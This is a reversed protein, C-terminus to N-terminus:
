PELLVLRIADLRLHAKGLHRLVESVYKEATEVEVERVNENVKQLARLRVAENDLHRHALEIASTVIASKEGEAIAQAKKLLNPVQEELFGGDNKLRFTEEDQGESDFSKHPWNKTVEKGAIDVVVRVPTPPLFRDVHLAPPAVCELVYLAEVLIGPRGDPSPLSIFATNGQESSLIVEMAGRVMPHEWTLFAMDERGLAESRHCTATMGENPLGPLAETFLQGPSIAYTGPSIDEVTVGFHDFLVNLYENLTPDADVANIQSVLTEAQEPRFSNRALLRSQGSRLQEELDDKFARSRQLLDQTDKQTAQTGEHYRAALESLAKGFTQLYAGGGRLSHEVGDIGEHHWRALLETSSEELFPIHIRITESQGIRDLRGIRQELLEPDLPLDFLVLHHAFQFNRGESGIESCLLIRAGDPEAFWAASRDRQVLTMAEHFVAINLNISSKLATEIALVKERTRCILLVKADGLKKLLETLWGIRSGAKYDLPEPHKGSPTHEESALECEAELRAKREAEKLSERLKLPALKALRKPFGTLLERTNRFMVRGTGHRDVLEDIARRLREPDSSELAGLYAAFEREDKESFINRLLAKDKKELTDTAEIIQILRAVEHYTRQERRFEELSPYREPDLLRLRAFHGELGLQEPTATLLLLGESQAALSEVLAYEPSVATESWALHHAEDVVLMDWGAEIAQAGHSKNKVLQDTSCLVLQEDLFPNEPAVDGDTSEFRKEDFLTFWLNFRRLLEVFWQHLLPEPLLVLIREARGTLVLRHLILCAEITKGLGVEDALLVRPHYRKAVEDAIYIQHPILDIRAGVFGLVESSRVRNLHRLTEYRLAFTANKDVSGARLRDETKSFSTIDALAGEPLVQGDTGHYIYLGEREEIHDITFREGDASTIADGPHFKVRRIPASQPAYTRLTGAGPFSLEVAHRNVTKVLGLGLEPESESIWRQGERIAEM